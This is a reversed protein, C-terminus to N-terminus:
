FWGFHEFEISRWIYLNLDKLAVLYTESSYVKELERTKIVDYETPGSLSIPEKISLRQGSGRNGSGPNGMQVFVM